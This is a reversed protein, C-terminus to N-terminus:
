MALIFRPDGLGEITWAISLSETDICVVDGTDSNGVFALSGDKSLSVDSIGPDLQISASVTWTEPDILCFEGTEKAIAVLTTGQWAVGGVDKGIYVKKVTSGTEADIVVLDNSEILDSGVGAAILMEDDPSVIVDRVGIVGDYQTEEILDDLDIVSIDYTGINACYLKSGDSSMALSVPRRGEIVTGDLPDACCAPALERSEFGKPVLQVAGVLSMLTTDLIRVSNLYYDAVYLLGRPEDLALAMPRTGVRVREVSPSDGFTIRVVEGNGFNAVYLQEGDSSVALAAPNVGVNLKDLEVGDSSVFSVDNGMYEVVCVLGGSARESLGAIILEEATPYKDAVSPTPEAPKDAAEGSPNESSCGIMLSSSLLLAGCLMIPGLLTSPSHAAKPKASPLNKEVRM